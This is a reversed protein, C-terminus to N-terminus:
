DRHTELAQEAMYMAAVRRATGIVTSWIILSRRPSPPVWWSWDPHGNLHQPLLVQHGAPVLWVGFPRLDPPVRPCSTNAPQTLFVLGRRDPSAIVPGDLMSMRLSKQVLGGFGAPMVIADLGAGASAFAEGTQDDHRVPCGLRETCFRFDTAHSPM